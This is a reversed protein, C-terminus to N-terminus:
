AVFIACHLPKDEHARRQCQTRDDRQEREGRVLVFVDACTLERALIRNNGELGHEGLLGRHVLLLLSQESSQRGLLLRRHVLRGRRLLGLRQALVILDGLELRLKGCGLGLLLLYSERDQACQLRM